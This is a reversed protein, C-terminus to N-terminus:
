PGVIGFAYGIREGVEVAVVEVQHGLAVERAPEDKRVPGLVSIGEPFDAVAVSYPVEVLGGPPPHNVTTWQSVRAARSLRVRSASGGCAPCIEHAPFEHRGCQECRSAVLAIPAGPELAGDWEFLRDDVPAWATM